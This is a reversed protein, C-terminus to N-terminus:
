LMVGKLLVSMIRCQRERRVIGKVEWTKLFM